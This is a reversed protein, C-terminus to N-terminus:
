MEWVITWYTDRWTVHYGLDKIKLAFDGNYPYQIHVRNNGQLCADEIADGIVEELCDLKNQASKRRLEAAEKATIM